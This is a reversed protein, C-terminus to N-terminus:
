FCDRWYPNMRFMRGVWNGGLIGRGASGAMRLTENSQLFERMKAVVRRQFKEDCTSAQSIPMHLEVPGSHVHRAYRIMDVNEVGPNGLMQDCCLCYSPMLVREGYRACNGCWRFLDATEVTIFHVRPNVMGSCHMDIHLIKENVDSDRAYTLRRAEEYTRGHVNKSFALM